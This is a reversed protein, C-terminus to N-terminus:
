RVQDKYDLCSAPTSFWQVVQKDHQTCRVGGNQIDVKGHTCNLCTKDNKVPEM